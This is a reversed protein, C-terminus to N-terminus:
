FLVGQELRKAAIECYREEIEIGIAQRGELKAAVLTTGSGMFPDLVVDGEETGVSVFKRIVKIPKENPHLNDQSAPHLIYRSKDRYSGFCRGSQFAHVIYETDPLYNGNSLPTPNPKNWTVLMWRPWKAAMILLEPLQAKACFCAWNDFGSLLEPDFGGDTFGDIDSLYERKAGIGGGTATMEYPPDTLVLDVPGLTPLIERCDGHYITIGAHAYYPTM